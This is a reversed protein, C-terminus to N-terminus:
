RASNPSFFPFSLFHVGAGAYCGGFSGGGNGGDEDLSRVRGGYECVDEFGGGAFVDVEFGAIYANAVDGAVILGDVVDDNGAIPGVAKFDTAM